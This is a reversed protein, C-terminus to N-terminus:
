KSYNAFIIIDTVLFNFLGTFRKLQTIRFMGVDRHIM